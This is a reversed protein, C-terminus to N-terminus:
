ADGELDIGYGQGRYKIRQLRTAPRWIRGVAHGGYHPKHGYRECWDCAEGIRWLRGCEDCRWLDTSTKPLPPHECQHAMRLSRKIWSM